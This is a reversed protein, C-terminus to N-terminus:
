YTRTALGMAVSFVSGLKEKDMDVSLKENIKINNFPNLVMVETGTRLELINTLGPINAYGGSLVILDIKDVSDSTQFYSVAVGVANAFDRSVTNFANIIPTIGMKLDIKGGIIEHVKDNPLSTAFGLQTQFNNGSIPIDRASHFVGNHIFAADSSETGINIIICSNYKKLDYNIQFINVISFLDVDVIVPKLGAENMCDIFSLIIDNKAIVLLVKMQKKEQNRELVEYDIEVESIDFPSIRQAEVLVAERIQKDPMLEMTLVNSLISYSPLSIVVEKERPDCLNVAKAASQALSSPNKIEGSQMAGPEVPVLAYSDLVYSKGKLTMKVAKIMSTGIDLGIASQVKKFLEM